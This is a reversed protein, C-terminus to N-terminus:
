NLRRHHQKSTANIAAACLTLQDLGHSHWSLQLLTTYIVLYRSNTIRGRQADIVRCQNIRDNMVVVLVFSFCCAAAALCCNLLRNFKDRSATATGSSFGTGRRGGRLVQLAKRKSSHTESNWRGNRGRSVFDSMQWHRLSLNAADVPSMDGNM